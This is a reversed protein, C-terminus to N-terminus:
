GWRDAAWAIPFMLLYYAPAVVLYTLLASGLGTFVAETIPQQALVVGAIVAVVYAVVLPTIHFLRSEEFKRFGSM